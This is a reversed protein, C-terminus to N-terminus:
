GQGVADQRQSHFLLMSSCILSFAQSEKKRQVGSLLITWPWIHETEKAAGQISRFERGFKTLFAENSVETEKPSTTM